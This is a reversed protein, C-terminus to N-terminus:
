KVLRLAAYLTDFLACSAVLLADDNAHQAQLGRVMMEVGAAEDVPIGGIDICHVMEGLRRLAADAELDFTCAVVEFTVRDGAHTFRAGDFDFGLATKPCKRADALWIFRATRDVFRQVLWATALRDVWPRKRTAWIRGQYDAISQRQIDADGTSPEGPSLHLAVERRLSALADATRAGARAPFFDSAQISQLQQELARLKKRLEVETAKGIFSRCERISQMLETYLGSRDFLARFSDDQAKDRAQVVLLHAAAGGGLDHGGSEM